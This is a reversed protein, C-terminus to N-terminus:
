IGHTEGISLPTMDRESASPSIAASDCVRAFPCISCAAISPTAPYPNTARGTSRPLLGPTRSPIRHGGFMDEIRRYHHEVVQEHLLDVAFGFIRTPPLHRCEVLYKQYLSVQNLDKDTISHTKWDIVSTGTSRETILADIVFRHDRGRHHFQVRQEAQLDYGDKKGRFQFYHMLRIGNEIAVPIIEKWGGIEARCDVDNYSEALQLGGLLIGPRLAVSKTVVLNFERLAERVANTQDSIREGDGIRRVIDALVSHIVHGGLERVSTLRRLDELHPGDAIYRYHFRRPCRLVDNRRTFSTAPKM